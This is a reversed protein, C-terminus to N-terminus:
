ESAEMRKRVFVAVLDFPVLTIGRQKGRDRIRILPWYGREEGQYYFSRTFGFYPDGGRSPLRFTEPRSTNALVESVPASHPHWGKNKSKM